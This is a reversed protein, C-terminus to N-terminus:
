KDTENQSPLNIFIQHKRELYINADKYIYNLFKKVQNIGSKNWTYMPGKQQLKIKTIGLYEIHEMLQILFSRTAIINVAWKKNGNKTTGNTSLSGDGDYYGRIFHKLLENNLFTPFDYTTSKREEIGHTKLDSCIKKNCIRIRCSHYEKGKVISTKEEIMEIPANIANCFKVLHKKDKLSLGIELAGQKLICGDAAIFGLWYAKEETDINEFYNQNYQYTRTDIKKTDINYKELHRKLTTAGIGNNKACQVISIDSEQYEKIAKQIIEKNIRKAM